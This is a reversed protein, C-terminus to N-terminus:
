WKGALSFTEKQYIIRCCTAAVHIHSICSNLFFLLGFAILINNSVHSQCLWHSEKVESVNINVYVTIKRLLQQKQIFHNLLALCSHCSSNRFIHKQMKSQSQSFTKVTVTFCLLKSINLTPQIHRRQHRLLACEFTSGHIEKTSQVAEMRYFM